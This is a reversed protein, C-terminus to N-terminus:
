PPSLGEQADLQAPLGRADAPSSSPSTAPPLAEITSTTLMMAIRDLILGQSSAGGTFYRYPPVAPFDGLM